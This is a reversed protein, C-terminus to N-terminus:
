LEEIIMENVKAESLTIDGTAKLIPTEPIKINLKLDIPIESAKLKDPKKKTLRFFGTKYDVILWTNFEKITM